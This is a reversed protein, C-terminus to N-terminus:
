LTFERFVVHADNVAINRARLVTGAMYDMSCLYKNFLYIFVAVTYVQLNEELRLVIHAM